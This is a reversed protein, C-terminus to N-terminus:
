AVVFLLQINDIHRLRDFVVMFIRHLKELPIALDDGVEEQLLTHIILFLMVGGAKSVKM